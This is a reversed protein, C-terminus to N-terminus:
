NKFQGRHYANGAAQDTPDQMREHFRTQDEFDAPATFGSKGRRTGQFVDGAVIDQLRHAHHAPLFEGSSVFRRAALDVRFEITNAFRLPVRAAGGGQAIENIANGEHFSMVVRVADLFDVFLGGDCASVAEPYAPGGVKDCMWM